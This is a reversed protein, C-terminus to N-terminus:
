SDVTRAIVRLNLMGRMPGRPYHLHMIGIVFEFAQEVIIKRADPELKAWAAGRM